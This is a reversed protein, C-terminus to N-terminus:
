APVLKRLPARAPAGGPQMPKLLVLGSPNKYNPESEVEYVHGPGWGNASVFVRGGLRVLPGPPPPLLPPPKSPPKPPKPRTPQRACPSAAKRKSGQARVDPASQHLGAPVELSLKAYLGEEVARREAAGRGLARGPHKPDPFFWRTGGLARDRKDWYLRM